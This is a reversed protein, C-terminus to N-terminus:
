RGNHEIDTEGFQQQDANDRQDDDARLAQRFHRAGGPMQEPAHLAIDGVDLRVDIAFNLELFQFLQLFFHTRRYTRM